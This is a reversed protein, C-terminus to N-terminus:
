LNDVKRKIVAEAKKLTVDDDSEVVHWKLKPSEIDDLGRNIQIYKTLAYSAIRLHTDRKKLKWWTRLRGFSM